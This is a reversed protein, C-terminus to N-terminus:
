WFFLAARDAATPQHTQVSPGVSDSCHEPDVRVSFASHASHARRSLSAQLAVELSPPGCSSPVCLAVLVEGLPVAGGAIGCGQCFYGLAILDIGFLGVSM